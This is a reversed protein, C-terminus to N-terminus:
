FKKLKKAFIEDFMYNNTKAPRIIFFNGFTFYKAKVPRILYLGTKNTKIYKSFSVIEKVESVPMQFSTNSYGFKRFTKINLINGPKVLHISAIHRKSFFLIAIMTMSSILMFFYLSNRLYDPYEPNISISFTIGTYASLFGFNLLYYKGATDHSFIFINESKNQIKSFKKVLFKFFKM